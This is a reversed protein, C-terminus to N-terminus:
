RGWGFVLMWILFASFLLAICGMLRMTFVCAKSNYLRPSLIYSFPRKLKNASEAMSQCVKRANAVYYSGVFIMILVVLIRFAQIM